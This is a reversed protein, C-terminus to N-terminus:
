TYTRAYTTVTKTSSHITIIKVQIWPNTYYKLQIERKKKFCKIYYRLQTDSVKLKHVM